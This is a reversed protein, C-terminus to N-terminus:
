FDYSRQMRQLFLPTDSPEMTVTWVPNPGLSVENSEVRIAYGEAEIRLRLAARDEGGPLRTAFYLSDDAYEVDAGGARFLNYTDGTTDNRLRGRLKGKRVLTAVDEELGEPFRVRLRIDYGNALADTQAAAAAGIYAIPQVLDGQAPAAPEMLEMESAAPPPLSDFAAPLPEGYEPLASGLESPAITTLAALAGFGQAFAGRMTVPQFYLISAAGLGMLLLVIGYLPISGLGVMTTLNAVWKNMVFLASSEGHQTLDFVIAAVIGFAAALGMGMLDGPGFDGVEKRLRREGYAM